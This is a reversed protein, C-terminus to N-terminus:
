RKGGRELFPRLSRILEGAEGALDGRGGAPPRDDSSFRLRDCRDFLDGIRARLEGDVGRRELERDIERRTMGQVAVCGKDGIYAALTRAVAGAAERPEAGRIRALSRRAEADARRARARAPDAALRDSRRRRLFLAALILLPAANAAALAGLPTNRGEKSWSVRSPEKLYRIDSEKREIEGRAAAREPPTGSVHVPFPGATLTVFRKKKPDFYSFPISPLEYDGGYRPVIIRTYTKRGRVRGEERETDTSSGSDYVKFLDSLELDPVTAAQVNGEGELVLTMTIPENAALSDRDIKADFRFDGVAGSFSAPRGETPLPLATLHLPDSKLVHRNSGGRGGGGRNFISFPDRSFFSDEEYQLTVPGVTLEGARTPFLATRVEYVLYRIGDVEDYFRRQPPLDEKWFGETSPPDYEPDRWFRVRTYLRFIFTVQEGVYAQKKNVSTRLFVERQEGSPARSDRSERKEPEAARDAPPADTVRFAIEAARAEGGGADTVRFPGIQFEGVTRPSLIYTYRSSATMKGNAITMSQSTGSSYVHFHRETEGLDVEVNGQSGEVVLTLTIRGDLDTENRDVQATLGLAFAKGASVIGALVLFATVIGLTGRRM